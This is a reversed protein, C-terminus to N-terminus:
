NDALRLRATSPSVEQRRKHTVVAKEKCLPEEGRQVGSCPALGKVWFFAIASTLVFLLTYLPFYSLALRRCTAIEGITPLGHCFIFVDSRLFAPPHKKYKAVGNCGWGGRM